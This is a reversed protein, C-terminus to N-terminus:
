NKLREGLSLFFGFRKEKWCYVNAWDVFAATKGKLKLCFKEKKDEIKM